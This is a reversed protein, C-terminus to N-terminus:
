INQIYFQIKNNNYSKIMVIDEINELVTNCYNKSTQRHFRIKSNSMTQKGRHQLNNLILIDVTASCPLFESDRKDRRQPNNGLSQHGCLLFM